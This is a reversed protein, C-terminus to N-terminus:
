FALLFIIALIGSILSFAGYLNINERWILITLFSTLLIIGINIVPFVLIADYKALSDILFFSSFINPIGLIGGRLFVKKEFKIKKFLLIIMTYIFSFTFISFLFLAKEEPPRHLEFIKICFDNVGIGVLLIILFMYDKINLGGESGKKLSYYFLIITILTFGFGIYHSFVPEESLFSISLGIPIIVSLRSSVTALSAGAASVAKAYAFFSYVFMGGLAAGFVLTEVSFEFAADFSIMIISIISAALYNGSLLTLPDGSKNHNFKLILAISTSSLITLILSIM